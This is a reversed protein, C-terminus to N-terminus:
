HNIIRVKGLPRGRQPERVDSRQSRLGCPYVWLNVKERGRNITNLRQRKTSIASRATLLNKADRLWACFGPDSAARGM